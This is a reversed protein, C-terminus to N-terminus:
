RVLLAPLDAISDLVHDADDALDDHTSTGTLVGVVMGAGASRGMHLDHLNDGIVLIESPELGLKEAFGHVMGPGPKSGHGSDYGAIFELRDKVGFASLSQLAAEESDMTAVGLRYSHAELRDFLLNLDTVVVANKLGELMFIRNVERVLAARDDAARFPALPLWGDVIEDNNAAALLSGSKMRGTNADLGGVIMLERALDEDNAAFFRAAAWCPPLWTKHFDVLTGDKDFLVAKITM